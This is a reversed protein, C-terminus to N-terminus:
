CIKILLYQYFMCMKDSLSRWHMCCMELFVLALLKADFANLTLLDLLSRCSQTLFAGSCGKPHQGLLVAYQSHIAPLRDQAFLVKTSSNTSSGFDQYSLMFFFGGAKCQSLETLQVKCWIVGESNCNCMWFNFWM